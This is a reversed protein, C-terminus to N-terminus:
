FYKKYAGISGFSPIMGFVKEGIEDVTIDEDVMPVTESQVPATEPEVLVTEIIQQYQEVSRFMSMEGFVREIEVSGDFIDSASKDESISREVENSETTPIKNPNAVSSEEPTETTLQEAINFEIGTDM